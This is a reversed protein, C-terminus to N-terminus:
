QSKMLRQYGPIIINNRRHGLELKRLKSKEKKPNGGNCILIRKDKMLILTSKFM